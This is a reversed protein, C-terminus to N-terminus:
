RRPRRGRTRGYGYGYYRYYGSLPRDDGNFVIGLLRARDILDLSERVLKRPTRHAAVVVLVGDVRDVILRSDPVPILPPTDVIVHTFQERAQALLEELRPSKLLEYPLTLSRGAPLVWLSFQSHLRVVDGLTLGPDLIADVLGPSQEGLRLQDGVSPDRLDLDVILVRAGPASALTGALNIATTTKGDGDAPSTVAIMRKAAHMRELVQRLGRYQEAGFSTPDQLSVLHEDAPRQQPESLSAAM